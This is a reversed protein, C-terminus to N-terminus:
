KCGMKSYDDKISNYRTEIETFNLNLSSVLNTFEQNTQNAENFFGLSNYVLWEYDQSSGVGGNLNHLATFMQDVYMTMLAHHNTMETSGYTQQVIANWLSSGAWFSIESTPNYDHVWGLFMAHMSEHILTSAMRLPTEDCLENRFYTNVPEGVKTTTRGM